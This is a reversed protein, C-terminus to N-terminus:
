PICPREINKSQRRNRQVATERFGTQGDSQLNGPCGSCLTCDQCQGVEVLLLAIPVLLLWQSSRGAARWSEGTFAIALVQTAPSRVTFQPTVEVDNAGRKRIRGNRATNQRTTWQLM